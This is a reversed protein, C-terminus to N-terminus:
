RGCVAGWLLGDGARNFKRRMRLLLELLVGNYGCRGCHSKDTESVHNTSCHSCCISSNFRGDGRTVENKNINLRAHMREERQGSAVLAIQIYM